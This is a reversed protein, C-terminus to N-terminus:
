GNNKETRAFLLADAGSAGWALMKGEFKLKLCKLYWAHDKERNAMSIHEIRHAGNQFMARMISLVAKTLAIPQRWAAETTMGWMLWVGPRQPIMGMAFIPGSEDFATWKPDGWSFARAAAHEFSFAEGYAAELQEREGKRLREGIMLLDILRTGPILTIM